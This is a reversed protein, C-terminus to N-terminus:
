RLKREGHERAARVFGEFIAASSGEEDSFSLEPHWQVGLWFAGGPREVAEIYAGSFGCAICGPAPERVFQHHYSNTMLATKGLLGSLLTGKQVTVPHLVGDEHGPIHQYLTGGAAVNLLQVGRCIGFVPLKERMASAYLAFEFADRVGDIRGCEPEIEAGYYRPHVDPGGTFLVGDLRRCLADLDEGTCDPTLVVPIGGAACIAQPYRERMCISDDTDGNQPTIGILPKM